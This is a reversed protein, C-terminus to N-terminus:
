HSEGILDNLYFPDSVIMYYHDDCLTMEGFEQEDGKPLAKGCIECHKM